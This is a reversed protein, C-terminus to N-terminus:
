DHPHDQEIPLVFLAKQAAAKHWRAFHRVHGRILLARIEDSAEILPLTHSRFLGYPAISREPLRGECRGASTEPPAREPCCRGAAQGFETVIAEPRKTSRERLM